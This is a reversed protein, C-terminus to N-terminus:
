SRLRNAHELIYKISRMSLTDNLQRASKIHSGVNLVVYDAARIANSLAVGRKRLRMTSPQEVETSNTVYLGYMALSTVDSSGPHLKFHRIAYSQKM